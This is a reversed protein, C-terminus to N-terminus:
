SNLICDFPFDRKRETWLLIEIRRLAKRRALFFGFVRISGIRMLFDKLPFSLPRDDQLEEGDM